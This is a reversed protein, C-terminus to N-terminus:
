MFVRVQLSFVHNAPEFSTEAATKRLDGQYSGNVLVRSGMKVDATITLRHSTGSRFGRAMRYDADGAPPVVSWTYLAGVSGAAAPQWAFSPAIQWYLMSDLAATGSNRHLLGATELLAVTSGRFIRCRQILELRRDYFSYSSGEEEAEHNVSLLNIAGALTFRRIPREGELRTELGAERYGRIERYNPTLSLRGSPREVAPLASDGRPSWEVEQRYSCDAYRVGTDLASSGAWSAISRWGPLWSRLDPSGVDVHEESTLSGQWSCDNLIGRLSRRPAYTWGIEASTKRVRLDSSQSYVEQQQMFYDGPVHPVYEQRMSDFVYTGMGKGAFIPVQVFSSTLETNTRYHQHSLFGKGAPTIDSILDLLTTTSQQAAYGAFPATRDFTAIGGVNWGPLPNHNVSQEWRVTYGTDRLVPTGAPIKSKLQYTVKEALKWPLLNFAVGGEFLGTGNDLSDTRWEDRYLLGFTQHPFTLTAHAYERRGSGKDLTLLHRFFTGNYDLSFRDSPAYLLGPSIKDIALLSDRREQGYTLSTQLGPLITTGATADWDQRNTSQAALSTDDWQEKRDFASLPEGSFRASTFRHTGDLWFSRRDIRKVGALFSFNTAASLNNNDDLSSFLNRDVDQGAMDLMARFLPLRVEAKIEANRQAAPAPVPSLDTYLTSYLADSDAPVHRYVQGRSDIFDLRYNANTKEGPNLTRFFVYFFGFTSDPHARISDLPVYVWFTDSGAIKRKYLPYLQSQGAVDNPHVPKATSAYPLRDGAAALAAKEADTLTLDIPQNKNDSESWIVGQMSFLSDPHVLAATAGAITRQYNYLRYEYEFRILDEDHIAVKPTFTVTGLAYDVTFDRDIGEDLDHGNIRVKVTATVPLILDREGNGRLTYPGQLGTHGQQTEIASKGGSLAGFAGISLPSSKPGVSASIGKIKKRGSLLGQFPWAVYQDGIISHFSPDDIALYIMDFDNIERTQGDLSSGQDSLHATVTTQPRINGGIKVDLGQELNLKGFNGLSVGVSKYGSVALKNKDPELAPASFTDSKMATDNPDFYRKPYLSFIKPIGYFSTTFSLHIPVGSDIPRSFFISNREPFFKWSPTATGNQLLVSLSSSDPFSNGIIYPGVSANGFLITDVM